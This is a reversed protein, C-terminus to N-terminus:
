GNTILRFNEINDANAYSEGDSSEFYFGGFDLGTVVRNHYNIVAGTLSFIDVYFYDKNTNYRFRLDYTATKVSKKTFSTDMKIISMVM